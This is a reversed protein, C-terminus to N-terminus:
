SLNSIKIKYKKFAEEVLFKNNKSVKFTLTTRNTFIVISYKNKSKAIQVSIIKSYSFFQGLYCVGDQCFTFKLSLVVQYIIFVIPILIVLNVASLLSYGGDRRLAIFSSLILFIVILINFIAVYSFVGITIFPGKKKHKREVIFSRVIFFAVAVFLLIEIISMYNM